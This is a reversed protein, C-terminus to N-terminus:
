FNADELGFKRGMPKVNAGVGYIKDALVRLVDARRGYLRGEVYVQDGVVVGDGRSYVEFMYDDVTGVNFHFGETAKTPTTLM